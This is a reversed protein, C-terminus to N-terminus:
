ITQRPRPDEVHRIVTLVANAISQKVTVGEVADAEIILTVTEGSDQYMLLEGNSRLRLVIKM